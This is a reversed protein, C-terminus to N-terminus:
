LRRSLGCAAISGKEVLWCWLRTASSLGGGHLMRAEDRHEVEDLRCQELMDRLERHTGRKDLADIQAQYHRDVFTEVTDITAHVAGPGFLAPLAGTIWGAVRWLPLFVTRQRPRLFDELATAHRSESRMHRISFRRLERDRSVTLIGRYIWVAGTEGAHDSRLERVLWKPM